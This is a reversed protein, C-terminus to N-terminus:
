LKDIRVWRMGAAKAAQVGAEGDEFVLCKEPAVGLLEAAKLFPDPYPKGNPTEGACVVIQIFHDIGLVKLTKEVAERSSGSVVAIKVRGFHYKLHNVVYDIPQTQEIYQDMFLKYKATKFEEPDFTSEYRHNIQEVVKTVPLGAFEDIISGEIAIGQEAAVRIYTDKHAGMNDALTGDCDYLFAEFDDQSLKVLAEYKDNNTSTSM